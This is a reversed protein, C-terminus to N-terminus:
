RNRRLLRSGLATVLGQTVAFIVRSGTDSTAVNVEEKVFHWAGIGAAAGVLAGLIAGGTSPETGAWKGVVIAGSAAGATAVGTALAVHGIDCALDDVGCDNLVAATITFGALSGASAGAAEILFSALGSRQQQAHLPSTAALATLLLLFVNKVVLRRRNSQRWRQAFQSTAWRIVLL